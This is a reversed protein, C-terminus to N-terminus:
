FQEGPFVAGFRADIFATDALGPNNGSGQADLSMAKGMLGGLGNESPTGFTKTTWYDQVSQQDTVMFAIESAVAGSVLEAFWAPWDAEPKIETYELWIEARNTVLRRGRVEFDNIGRGGYNDPYAAIPAGQMEPPLIYQFQYGPPTGSARTLQKVNKMCEWRYSGIVTARIEPYVVKLHKAVDTPTDFSNIPNAGLNLLARSCISVDTRAM